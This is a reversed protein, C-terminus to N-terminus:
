ARRTSRPKANPTGMASERVVLHTELVYRVDNILKTSM